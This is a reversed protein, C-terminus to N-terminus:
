RKVWQALQQNPPYTHPVFLHGHQERFVLLEEFRETWQGIQLKRSRKPLATAQNVSPLNALVRLSTSPAVDTGGVAVFSTEMVNDMSPGEMSITELPRQATVGTTPKACFIDSLNRLWEDSISHGSEQFCSLSLEPVVRNLGGPGIPTPELTFYDDDLLTSTLNHACQLVNMVNEM